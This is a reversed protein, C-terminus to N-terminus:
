CSSTSNCYNPASFITVLTRSGFFEYGDEVVQHARCILDMDHVNLFQNLVAAGFTYSVGRDNPGWTDIYPDPDAWLLDCLLGRDPVDTPRKINAIQQLSQRKMIQPSLGGHMCFIKEDIIAAVPLYNFVDTFTKWLRIGGDPYRRKCEDFFGYIRNISGCEHNGRLLYFDNRYKIKYCFLLLIVELSHSGRDVYDGLFIYRSDVENPYGGLEFLRLLDFYQGHIDGVIKMPADIELLASESHFISRTQLCIKEVAESAINICGRNVSRKLSRLKAIIKDVETQPPKKQQNQADNQKSDDNKNNKDNGNKHDSSNKTNGKGYTNPDDMSLSNSDSPSTEPTKDDDDDMYTKDNNDNALQKDNANHGGNGNQQQQSSDNSAM